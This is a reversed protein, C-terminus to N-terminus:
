LKIDFELRSHFETLGGIGCRLNMPIINLALRRNTSNIRFGYCLTLGFYYDNIYESTQPGSYDDRLGGTGKLGMITNVFLGSGLVMSFARVKFVDFFLNTEVNLSTFSEDPADMPLFRTSYHGFSFNPNLRLRDRWIERQYGINYALGFGDSNNGSTGGLSLGTKISNKSFNQAQSNIFSVTLLVIVLITAKKKM